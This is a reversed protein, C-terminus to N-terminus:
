KTRIGLPQDAARFNDPPDAHCVVVLIGAGYRGEESGRPRLVDVAPSVTTRLDLPTFFERQIFTRFPKGTM